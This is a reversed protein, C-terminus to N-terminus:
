VSGSVGYPKALYARGTELDDSGAGLVSVRSGARRRELLGDLEQITRKKRAVARADDDSADSDTADTSM